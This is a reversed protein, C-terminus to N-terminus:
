IMLTCSCTIYDVDIVSMYLYLRVEIARVRNARDGYIVRVLDDTGAFDKYTKYPEVESLEFM